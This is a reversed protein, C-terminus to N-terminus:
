WASGDAVASCASLLIIAIFRVALVIIYYFSYILVDVVMIAVSM